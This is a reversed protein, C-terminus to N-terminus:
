FSLGYHNHLRVCRLYSFDPGQDATYSPGTLLREEPINLLFANLSEDHRLMEWPLPYFASDLEASATGDIVAYEVRGGTKGLLFHDIRAIRAGDPRVIWAEEETSVPMLRRDWDHQLFGTWQRPSGHKSHYATM